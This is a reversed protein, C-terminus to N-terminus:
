FTGLVKNKTLQLQRWELAVQKENVQLEEEFEPRSMPRYVDQGECLQPSLKYFGEFGGKLVYLQPFTLIPYENQSRDLSRIQRFFRPGRKSSFECHLIFVPMVSQNSEPKYMQNLSDSELEEKRYGDATM